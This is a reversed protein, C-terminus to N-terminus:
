LIVSEILDCTQEIQGSELGYCDAHRVLRSLVPLMESGFANPNLAQNALTFVGRASPVEYVCPDRDSTYRTFIIKEVPYSAIAASSQYDSLSIYGVKGKLAKVYDRKRCLNLGLRKVLDFSGAKVCIAKPFPHVRLTTPNILAFEDCLYEWGRSLLAAALTSKGAGSPGTIIVAKGNYAMAAAHVQLYDSRSAIVRWNVGWELYPLVEEAQHATSIKIGDGNIVYHRRAQLWSSKHEEIEMRIVPASVPRPCRFGGYLALFDSRLSQCDSRLSINIDGISFHEGAGAIDPRPQTCITGM